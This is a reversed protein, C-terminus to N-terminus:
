GESTKMREVMKVNKKGLRELHLEGERKDDEGGHGGGGRNGLGVSLGFGLPAANVALGAPLDLTDGIGEGAGDLTHTTERGTILGAVKGSLDGLALDILEGTDDDEGLLVDVGVVIGQVKSVLEGGGGFLLLLVLRGGLAFGLSLRLPAADGALRAPLLALSSGLRLGVRLPAVNGVLGAPLGLAGSLGDHGGDLRGLGLGGKQETVGGKAGDVADALALGVRLPATDVALGAPLTIGGGLSSAIGGITGAGLGGTVQVGHVVDSTGDEGSVGVLVLNEM